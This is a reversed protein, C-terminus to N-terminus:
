LLVGIVPNVLVIYGNEVTSLIQVSNIFILQKKVTSIMESSIIFHRNRCYIANSQIYLLATRSGRTEGAKAIM